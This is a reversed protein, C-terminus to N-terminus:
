KGHNSGGIQSRLQINELKVALSDLKNEIISQGRIYDERRVYNQPLDAKLEMLEREVTRWQGAEQKHSAHLGDLRDDVGKFRQSLSKDLQNFFVKAAAWIAGFFALLLTVLQWLEVQLTM